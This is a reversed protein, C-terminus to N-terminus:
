ETNPQVSPPDSKKESVSGDIIEVEEMSDLDDPPEEGIKREYTRRSEDTLETFATLGPMEKLSKLGFFELFYSSTGYIL